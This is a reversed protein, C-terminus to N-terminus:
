KRSRRKKIHKVLLMIGVLIIDGAAFFLALEATFSGKDKWGALTMWIGLATWLLPVIFGLVAKERSSLFIQFLILIVPLATFFLIVVTDYFADPM